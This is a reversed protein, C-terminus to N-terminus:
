SRDSEGNDGFIQKFMRSMNEEINEVMEKEREDLWMEYENRAQPESPDRDDEMPGHNNM